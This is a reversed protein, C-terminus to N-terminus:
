YMIMLCERMYEKAFAHVLGQTRSDHIFGQRDALFNDM